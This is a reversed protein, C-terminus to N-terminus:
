IIGCAMPVAAVTRTPAEFRFRYEGAVNEPQTLRGEEDVIAPTRETLVGDTLTRGVLYTTGDAKQTLVAYVAGPLTANDSGEKTFTTKGVEIAPIVVPTMSEIERTM